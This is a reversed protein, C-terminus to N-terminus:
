HKSPKARPTQQKSQYPSNNPKSQYPSNNPKTMDIGNYYNHFFLTVEKM